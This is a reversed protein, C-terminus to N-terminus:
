NAKIKSRYGNFYDSFNGTYLRVHKEDDIAAIKTVIRDLFYRDHSVTLITGEFQELAAELVETSAIDLNNTPEDLLLFNAGMLMLKAIQLRGKEGGSLYQIPTYMDHYSFLFGRLFSVAQGENMPKIRRVFDIPASDFPLAEQEQSYYGVVVNAGIKISSNTVPIKELITKLLTTKGSGNAGVIGIREGYLITLDFPEFLVQGNITKSLGNIELVKNGSRSSDLNVKMKKRVLIPREAAERKAREVRKAMSEARPAFKPNQKAWEKLQRLSVELRKIEEQQGSYLEYRKLLRHQKEEVYYSYNGFYPSIEGDELEFIKSVTKNLFHRDHSIVLVAGNYNQIYQELWAKAALDLHNDPEDLLLLDPKQLLLRALSVIKRKGGSLTGVEQKFQEDSFGLGYLITEVQHSLTYGGLTDFRDQAKGYAELLRDMKNVNAVINQDSMQSEIDRLLGSIEALERSTELVTEYVTKQSRLLDSEQFLYGITLNRKCSINGETPTELGAILKFLTSKGAGNEGIFSIRENEVIVFNADNLVPNGAYDKSVGSFSVLQM